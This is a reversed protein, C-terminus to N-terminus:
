KDSKRLISSVRSKKEKEKKREKKKVDNKVSFLEVVLSHIFM